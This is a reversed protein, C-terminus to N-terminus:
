VCKLPRCGWVAAESTVGKKKQYSVTVKLMRDIKAGSVSGSIEEPSDRGIHKQSM